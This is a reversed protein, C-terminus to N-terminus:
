CCVQAQRGTGPEGVRWLRGATRQGSDLHGQEVGVRLTVSPSSITTPPVGGGTAPPAAPGSVPPTGAAPAPRQVQVGRRQRLEVRQGADPRHEGLPDAGM